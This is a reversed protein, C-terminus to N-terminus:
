DVDIEVQSWDRRGLKEKVPGSIAEQGRDAFLPERLLFAVMHVQRSSVLSGDFDSFPMTAWNHQANGGACHRSASM